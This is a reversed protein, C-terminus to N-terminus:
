TLGERLNGGSTDLRAQLEPNIDLPQNLRRGILQGLDALKRL